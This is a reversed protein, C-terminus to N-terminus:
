PLWEEIMNQISPHLLIETDMCLVYHRELQDSLAQIMLSNEHLASVSQVHQVWIPDQKKQYSLHPAPLIALQWDAYKERTQIEIIREKCATAQTQNLLFVKPLVRNQLRKAIDILPHELTQAAMQRILFYIDYDAFQRYLYYNERMFDQTLKSLEVNDREGADAPIDNKILMAKKAAQNFFYTQRLFDILASPELANFPSDQSLEESLNQLFIQLLYEAGFKKPHQYVNQMMLRRAMFYHEIVGLGKRTIGLRKKGQDDVVALCHLLWRFDYEGYSVGCFHSDRLLYDLRDSDLQSSVIDALITNETDERKILKEIKQMEDASVPYNSLNAHYDALFMGTWQEHRISRGYFISEFAHSFPGHGIDHLLCALLAIKKDQKPLQLKNCIQSAIYACGLSHSFRTHVAGPFIWDTLGLQKIHRLRQFLPSDLFPKLWAHEEADFQMSGQVPDKIVHYAFVM